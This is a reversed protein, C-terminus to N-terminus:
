IGRFEWSIERPRGLSICRLNRPRHRDGETKVRPGAAQVSAAGRRCRPGPGTRATVAVGTGRPGQGNLEQLQAM